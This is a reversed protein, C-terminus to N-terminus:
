DYTEAKVTRRDFGREMLFARLPRVFQKLGCIMPTLGGHTGLLTSLLDIIRDTEEEPTAVVPMYRFRSLGTITLFEEHYLLEDQSPATSIVTLGATPKSALLARIMCRIPVIGTYRGIMLLENGHHEPLVFKGHPGSLQVRDGVGLSYLYGSGIGEPVRDFVLSLHGSPTEPAAMSYARNLPPKQEVPVKISIWQGPRYSVRRGLPSLVIERVHSTMDRVSVVEAQQIGETV